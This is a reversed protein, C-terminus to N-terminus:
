IGILLVSTRLLGVSFLSYDSGLNMVGVATGLFLGSKVLPFLEFM